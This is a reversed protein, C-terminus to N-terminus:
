LIMGTMRPVNIFDQMLDFGNPIMGTMRPVYFLFFYFIGISLIMGTMRPVNLYEDDTKQIGPIMGTM